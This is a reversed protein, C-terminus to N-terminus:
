RKDYANFSAAILSWSRGAIDQYIKIGPLVEQCLVLWLIEDLQM